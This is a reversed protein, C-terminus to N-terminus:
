RFESKDAMFLSSGIVISDMNIKGAVKARSMNLPRDLIGSSIDIDNSFVSGEFSILDTARIFSIDVKDLVRSKDLWWEVKLHANALNLPDKIWAGAIRVGRRPLENQYASDLLITELFKSSILREDTWGNPDNPDLDNNLKIHFDAIEGKEVQQWAWKEPETWETGTFRNGTQDSLPLSM